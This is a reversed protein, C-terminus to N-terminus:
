RNKNIVDIDKKEAHNVANYEPVDIWYREPNISVMVDIECAEDLFCRGQYEEETFKEIQTM